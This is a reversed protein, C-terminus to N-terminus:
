SSYSARAKDLQSQSTLWCFYKFKTTRATEQATVAHRIAAVGWRRCAAFLAGMQDDKADVYKAVTRAIETIKLRKRWNDRTEAWNAKSCLSNMYKYINDAHDQAYEVLARLENPAEKLLQAYRKAWSPNQVVPQLWDPLQNNDEPQEICSLKRSRYKRHNQLVEGISNTM